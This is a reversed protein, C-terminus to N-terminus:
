LRFYDNLVVTILHGRSSAGFEEVLRDLTAFDGERLRYNLPTLPGDASRSARSRRSAFLSGGATVAPHILDKLRPYTAEIAVIIVEGHSLGDSKCKEEIPRVLAVPIHVNSPRVRDEPGKPGKQPTSDAVPADSPSDQSSDVAPAPQPPEAARAPPRATKAPLTAAGREGASAPPTVPAPAARKRRPPLSMPAAVELDDSDEFNALRGPAVERAAGSNTSSM